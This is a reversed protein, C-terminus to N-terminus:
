PATRNSLRQLDVFLSGYIKEPTSGWRKEFAARASEDFEEPRCSAFMAEFLRCFNRETFEREPMDEPKRAIFSTSGLSISTTTSNMVILFWDVRPDFRRFSRAIAVLVKERILVAESDLYFREWDILGEGNRYLEVLVACRAKMAEHVDDGLIMRMAAFFQALNKREMGSKPQDLLAAFTQTILRGLRDHRQSEIRRVTFADECALEARTYVTAIPGEAAMIADAIRRAQEMTVKGDTAAEDLLDLFARLAVGATHRCHAGLAPKVQPTKGTLPQIHEVGM